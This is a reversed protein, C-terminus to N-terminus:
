SLGMLLWKMPFSEGLGKWQYAHKHLTDPITFVRYIKVVIHSFTDGGLFFSFFFFMMSHVRQVTHKIIRLKHRLHEFYFLHKLKFYINKQSLHQIDRELNTTTMKQNFSKTMKTQSNLKTMKLNLAFNDFFNTLNLPQFMEVTILILM